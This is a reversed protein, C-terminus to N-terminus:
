VSSPRPGKRVAMRLAVHETVAARKSPLSTYPVDQILVPRLTATVRLSTVVEIDDEAVFSRGYMFCPPAFTGATYDSSLQALLAEFSPMILGELGGDLSVWYLGLRPCYDIKHVIRRWKCVAMGVEREVEFEDMQSHCFTDADDMSSGQLHSAHLPDVGPANFPRLSATVNSAAKGPSVTNLSKSPILLATGGVDDGFHKPRRDHGAAPSKGKASHPTVLEDRKKDQKPLKGGRRAGEEAVRRRDGSM